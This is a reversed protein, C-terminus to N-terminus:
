QASFFGKKELLPYLVYTNLVNERPHTTPRFGANVEGGSVPVSLYVLMYSM